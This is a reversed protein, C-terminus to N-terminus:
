HAWTLTKNKKRGLFKVRRRSGTSLSSKSVSSEVADLLMEMASLVGASIDESESEIFAINFSILGKIKLLDAESVMASQKLAISDKKISPAAENMV